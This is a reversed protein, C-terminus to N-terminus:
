KGRLDELRLMYIPQTLTVFRRLSTVGQDAHAQVRRAVHPALHSVDVAVPAEAAPPPLVACGLLSALAAFTFALRM